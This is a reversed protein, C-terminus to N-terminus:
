KAESTGGIHRPQFEVNAMGNNFINNANDCKQCVNPYGLRMKTIKEGSLLPQILIIELVWETFPFNLLICQSRVVACLHIPLPSIIGLFMLFTVM